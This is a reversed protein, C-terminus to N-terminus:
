QSLVIISNTNADTFYIVENGQRDQTAVIGSLAGPAGTDLQRPQGLVGGGAASSLEIVSNAPPPTSGASLPLDGNTVLLNGNPRLAVGVPTLALGAGTGGFFDIQDEQPTLENKTLGTPPSGGCTAAFQGAASFSSVQRIEIVQGSSSDSIYLTDSPGYLLAVPGYLAGATGSTCLGSVIQVVSASSATDGNLAVRYISGGNPRSLDITAVYLSNGAYAIGSPGVFTGAPLAANVGGAPAVMPTQNARYAAAFLTGDPLATLANCGALEASQAVQYATAGATPHLGVITTGQGAKGGSDAFDCTLLDGTTIRGATTTALALGKPHKDHLVPDSTSGLTSIKGAGVLDPLVIVAPAAAFSTLGGSTTCTVGYTVTGRATPTVTVAAASNGFGAELNPEIVFCDGGAPGQFAVIVSQGLVITEGHVPSTITIPAAGPDPTVVVSANASATGKPGSCTVTYTFSGTGVPAAGSTGSTTTPTGNAGNATYLLPYNGGSFISSTSGFCSTANTSQWSISVGEGLLITSEQPQVTVTVAPPAVNVAVSATATGGAGTCVITYTFSGAATPIVTATGNVPESAPAATSGFNGAATNSDSATCGSAENSAWALNM